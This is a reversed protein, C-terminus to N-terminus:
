RPVTRLARLRAAKEPDIRKPPVYRSCTLEHHGYRRGCVACPRGARIEDTFNFTWPLWPM